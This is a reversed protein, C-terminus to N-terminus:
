NAAPLAKTGHYHRLVRLARLTTWKSPRGNTEIDVLMKGNWTHDLNWCGGSTQKKKVLDVAQQTRDDRIDLRTLIDLIELADTNWMNPFGFSAWGPRAIRSPHHSSRYVRHLLLFEVARRITRRVAPTKLTDPLVSLAKLGKVVGHLCSHRGFCFDHHQHRNRAPPQSGGDDFRLNRALWKVSKGVRADQAQGLRTLAFVMNGTLCPIVSSELGGGQRSPHTSFGGSASSWSYELIHDCARRIRADDPDAGLEALVILTWVTGWYKSTYLRHVPAWGGDPNQRRLIEPVLGRAMIARKAQAVARSRPSRGLIDTLTFCRVSPNDEGLLWDTPDSKLQGQRSV